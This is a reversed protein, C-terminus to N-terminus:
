FQAKFSKKFRALRAKLEPKALAEEIEKADVDREWTLQLESSSAVSTTWLSQAQPLPIKGHYNCEECPVTAMSVGQPKLPHQIHVWGADCKSDRIVQPFLKSGEACTMSDAQEQTLGYLKPRYRLAEFLKLVIIDDATFDKKTSLSERELQMELQNDM